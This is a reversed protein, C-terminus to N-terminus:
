ELHGINRNCLRAKITATAYSRRTSDAGLIAAGADVAAYRATPEDEGEYVLILAGAAKAYSNGRKLLDAIKTFTADDRLGVIFRM